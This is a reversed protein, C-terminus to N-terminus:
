ASTRPPAPDPVLTRGPITTGRVWYAVTCSCLPLSTALPTPPLNSIAHCPSLCCADVIGGDWGRHDPTKGLSGHQGLCQEDVATRHAHVTMPTGGLFAVSGLILFLRRMQKRM